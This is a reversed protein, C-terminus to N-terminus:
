GDACAGMRGIPRYTLKGELRLSEYLTVRAAPFTVREVRPLDGTLRVGRGLTIHPTYIEEGGPFGLRLLNERLRAHLETLPRSDEVGAWVVTGRKFTDMKGSLTLPFPGDFAEDAASLLRPIDEDDMQGLFVLTLHYLQKDYLRGASLPIRSAARSLAERAAHDPSLGM